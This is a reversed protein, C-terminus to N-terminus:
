HPAALALAAASLALLIAAAVHRPVRRRRTAERPLADGDPAADGGSTWPDEVSLSTEGVVVEDGPALPWPRRDVRVGNVLVGNKSGLDEIAAGNAGASVRAHVRSARPDPLRLDAARGRGLTLGPGLARRAGARPGTLVVLRAGPVQEAGSAADRLLAAAAVRTGPPLPELALITGHLEVREGPRLLRRSGPPVPRGGARVGPAAAEVVVGAAVPVLRLAAAAAGALVIADARSGGATAPSDLVLQELRAGERQVTFTRTVPALADM